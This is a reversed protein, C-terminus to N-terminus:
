TLTRPANTFKLTYISVSQETEGEVNSKGEVPKTFIGGSLIYIESTVNGQGDGIKKIFQGSMLVFAAFDRQQAAFKGQFTKDDASGRILRLKMECQRGTENLAYVSNGNKGTKVQAIDNPFTVEICNGEALDNLVRDDLVATDNGTMAVSNM